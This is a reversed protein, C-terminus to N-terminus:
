GRYLNEYDREEEPPLLENLLELIDNPSYNVNRLSKIADILEVRDESEIAEIADMLVEEAKMLPAKVRQRRTIDYEPADHPDEDEWGNESISGMTATSGYNAPEGFEEDDGIELDNQQETEGLCGGASQVLAIKLEQLIINKLQLTTLKMKRKGERYQNEHISVFEEEDDWDKPGWERGAEIEPGYISRFAKTLEWEADASINFEQMAHRLLQSPTGVRSGHLIKCFERASEGGGGLYDLLVDFFDGNCDGADIDQGRESIYDEMEKQIIEKLQSNTIKM